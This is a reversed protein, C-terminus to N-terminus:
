HTDHRTSHAQAQQLRDLFLRRNPLGTLPDYFALQHVQEEARKHDTVDQIVVIHYDPRAGQMWMPSITLNVWINRGDKHSIRRELELEHLEGTRLREMDALDTEGVGIH